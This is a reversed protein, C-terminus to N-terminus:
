AHLLNVIQDYDEKTFGYIDNGRCSKSDNVDGREENSELFSQNAMVHNKGFHPPFGCKRYYADIIHGNRGCHTCIKKNRLTFSSGNGRCRGHLKRYDTANVLIKSEDSISIKFKRKHKM